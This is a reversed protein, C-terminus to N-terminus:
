HRRHLPPNSFQCRRWIWGPFLRSHDRRTSNIRVTPLVQMGLSVLPRVCVFNSKVYFAAAESGISDKSPEIHLLIFTLSNYSFKLVVVTKGRQVKKLCIDFIMDIRLLLAWWVTWWDRWNMKWDVICAEIAWSSGQFTASNGEIEPNKSSVFVPRNRPIISCISEQRGVCVIELVDSNCM